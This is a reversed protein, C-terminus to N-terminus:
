SHAPVASRVLEDVRKVWGAEDAHFAGTHGVGPLQWLRGGTLAAVRRGSSPPVTRDAEGQIVLTPVPFPEKGIAAALDIIRGGGSALRYVAPLLSTFPLSVGARFAVVERFGAFGSDAVVAAVPAGEAAAVLSALAGASFGVLVVPVHLTARAWRAADAVDRGEPGGGGYRRAGSVYGLNVFLVGYGLEHLPPGVELTATRNNGYGHVVVVVPRGPQGEVYWAPRGKGYTVDRYELGVSSPDRAEVPDQGGRALVVAAYTNGGVWAGLVAAALGIAAPRVVRRRRRSPRAAGAAQSPRVQDPSTM